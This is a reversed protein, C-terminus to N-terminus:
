TARRLVFCGLGYSCLTPDSPHGKPLFSLATTRDCPCWRNDAHKVWFEQEVVEFGQLLKPLRHEGYVRHWPAIAADKGCPITMLMRGVPKLLGHFRRMAELDGDTEETAIGYRGQLGVHEVASCNLILDFNGPPLEIKLLDAQLFDVNPHKWRFREQDLDLALVHYGCQAAAISLIGFSAGFDLVEGPGELFRSIIFSWEIERDGSLNISNTSQKRVSHKIKRAARYAWRPIYFPLTVRVM